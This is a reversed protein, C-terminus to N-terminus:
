EDEDNLGITGLTGQKAKQAMQLFFAYWDRVIIDQAEQLMISGNCVEKHLENEVSDKVKAGIEKGNVQTHYPEPWLNKPDTPHGGLELSILHDEEYDAPNIDGNLAYGTHGAVLQRNKLKSTYSVPPRISKTSWSHSCITQNITDQTIDPNLAGPTLAPNPYIEVPGIHSPSPTAQRPFSNLLLATTILGATAIIVKHKTRM